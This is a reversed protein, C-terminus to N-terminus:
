GKSYFQWHCNRTLIQFRQRIRRALTPLNARFHLDVPCAVRQCPVVLTTLSNRPAAWILPHSGRQSVRNDIRTARDKTYDYDRAQLSSMAIRWIFCSISKPILPKLSCLLRALAPKVWRYYRVHRSKWGLRPGHVEATVTGKKIKFLLEPLNGTNGRGM